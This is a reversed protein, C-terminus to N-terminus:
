HYEIPSPFPAIKTISCAFFRVDDDVRHRQRLFAQHVVLVTSLRGWVTLGRSVQQVVFEARGSRQANITTAPGRL